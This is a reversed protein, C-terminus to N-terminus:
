QRPISVGKMRVIADVLRKRSSKIIIIYKILPLFFCHTKSEGTKNRYM